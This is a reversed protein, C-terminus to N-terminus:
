WSQAKHKELLKRNHRDAALFGDILIVPYIILMAFGLTVVAAGISIAMVFLGLVVMGCYMYGAGPLIFNLFAAAAGSKKNVEYDMAADSTDADLSSVINSVPSWGTNGDRRFEDSLTLRGQNWLSKLQSKTYPGSEGANTNIYYLTSSKSM